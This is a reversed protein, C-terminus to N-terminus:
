EMGTVRSRRELLVTDRWRGALPGYRMRGIRERRGVIRFGHKRQLGVSAENEPFTSSQLTWVGHAEAVRVLAGLLANGVGQGRHSAAVYFSVEAVGAYVRRASVPSLVAWGALTGAGDRAVLSCEALRSKIFDEWTDPPASEFTAHGTDIGEQYIRRVHPWDAATMSELRLPDM